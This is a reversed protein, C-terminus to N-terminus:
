VEAVPHVARGDDNCASPRRTEGYPYRTRAPGRCALEWEDARCLRKGSGHCAQAAQAGSVYGQPVVHPRSVARLDGARGDIVDFPSWAPEGRGRGVLTAEWRDVCVQ